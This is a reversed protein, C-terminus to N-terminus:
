ACYQAGNISQVAGNMFGAEDSAIYRVLAAIEDAEGLRGAPINSVIKQLVNDDIASVMETNIYGPCICNVTIGKHAAEQALAKTFGIVGAKAASYNTQGAQGKQGNISSINIIRGMGRNRMTEFVPKSVNFMSDLNTAIVERWQQATMKHFFGDRTIGANNVLVHVFGYQAEIESISQCVAEYDSVDFKKVIAGTQKSFELAREDNGAYNAIVCYGDNILAISIAAGIGRTGGTVLAVKKETM